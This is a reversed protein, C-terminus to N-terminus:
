LRIKNPNYNDWYEKRLKLDRILSLRGARYMIVEMALGPKIDLELEDQELQNILDGSLMPIEKM